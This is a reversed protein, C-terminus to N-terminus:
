AQALASDKVSRRFALVTLPAVMIWQALTFGTEILLYGPVSTMINKAAVALTTFSWSLVAGLLGYLLARSGFSTASQALTRGYIWAFIGGQILMSLLGFPIIIDDRYIHLARYYDDFLVLHWVFGLGFTPLVYALVALGFRMM